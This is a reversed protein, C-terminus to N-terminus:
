APGDSLLAIRKRIWISTNRGCIFLFLVNKTILIGRPPIYSIHAHTILSCQIPPQEFNKAPFNAKCTPLMRMHPSHSTNLLSITIQLHITDYYEYLLKGYDEKQVKEISEAGFSIFFVNRREDQITWFFFSEWKYPRFLLVHDCPWLSYYTYRYMNTTKSGWYYFTFTFFLLIFIVRIPQLLKLRVLM